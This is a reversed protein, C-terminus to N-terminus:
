IKSRRDTTQRNFIKIGNEKLKKLTELMKETIKKKNMDILTGDIDFFAIKIM